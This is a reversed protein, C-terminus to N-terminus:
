RSFLEVGQTLRDVIVNEKMPNQTLDLVKMADHKVGLFEVPLQDPRGCLFDEDCIDHEAVMAVDIAKVEGHPLDFIAPFGPLLGDRLIGRISVVVVRHRKADDESFVEETFVTMEDCRRGASLGKKVLGGLSM